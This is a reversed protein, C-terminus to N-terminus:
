IGSNSIKKVDKKLDFDRVITFFKDANTSPAVIPSRVERSPNTLTIIRCIINKYKKLVFILFFIRTCPQKFDTLM